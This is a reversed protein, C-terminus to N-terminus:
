LNEGRLAKLGYEIVKGKQQETLTSSAVYSMFQNSLCIEQSKDIEPKSADKVCFYFFKQSYIEELEKIGTYTDIKYSGELVLRVISTPNVNKLLTKASDLIQAYNLSTLDLSIQEVQRYAFPIFTSKINDCTDLLVFGKQGLEDYGRGELCGCYCYKGRRDLKDQRFAHLHGLALYDINKNTFDVLNLNDNQSRSAIQAHLLVINQNTPSLSLSSALCSIEGCSAGCIVVNGYSYSTWTSNFRKLNPYNLTSLFNQEDHNGELCLFDINANSKIISAFREKTAFTAFNTDFIDGALMIVSVGNDNAYETLRVFTTILEMRRKKALESPLANLSSDLHLDSCHILKM